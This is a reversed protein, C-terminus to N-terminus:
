ARGKASTEQDADASAEAEWFLGFAGLMRNSQGILPIATVELLREVGDQGRIRIM